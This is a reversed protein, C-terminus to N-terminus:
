TETPLPLGALVFDNGGKPSFQGRPLEGFDNLYILTYQQIKVMQYRNHDRNEFKTPKIKSNTWGCAIPM